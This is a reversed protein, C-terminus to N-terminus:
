TKETGVPATAASSSHVADFLVGEASKGIGSRRNAFIERQRERLIEHKVQELHVSANKYQAELRNLEERMADFTNDNVSCYDDDPLSELLEHFRARNARQNRELERVLFERRDSLPHEATLFQRQFVQEWRFRNEKPWPTRELLSAISAPATPKKGNLVQVDTWGLKRRSHLTNPSVKLQKAWVTLPQTTGDSDTLFVTDSKNCNQDAVIRWAVLDPGYEKNLNDLRDLSYSKSPRPGVHFLFDQFNEFQPAIVAGHTKRRAKMNRWSSYELGYKQRLDTPSMEAIDARAQELGDPTPFPPNNM